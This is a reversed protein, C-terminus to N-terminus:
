LIFLYSVSSNNIHQNFSVICTIIKACLMLGYVIFLIIIRRKFIHVTNVGSLRKRKKEGSKGSIMTGNSLTIHKSTWQFIIQTLWVVSGKIPVQYECKRM